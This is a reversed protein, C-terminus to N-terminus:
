RPFYKRPRMIEGYEGRLPSNCAEDSLLLVHLRSLSGLTLVMWVFDNNHFLTIVLLDNLSQVLLEHHFTSPVKKVRVTVLRFCVTRPGLVMVVQSLECMWDDERSGTPSSRFGQKSWWGGNSVAV